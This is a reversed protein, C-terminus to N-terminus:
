KRREKNRSPMKFTYVFPNTVACLMSCCASIWLSLVPDVPADSLQVISIVSLPLWCCLPGCIVKTINKLKMVTYNIKSESTASQLRKSSQEAVHIMKWTMYVESVIVVPTLVIFMASILTSVLQQNRHVLSFCFRNLGTFNIYWQIISIGVVFVLLVVWIAAIVYLTNYQFYRRMPYVIGLCRVLFLVLLSLMEAFMATNSLIALLYCGVSSQWGMVHATFENTFHVDILCLAIWYVGVLIDSICLNVLLKNNYTPAQIRHHKRM